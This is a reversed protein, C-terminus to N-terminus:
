ARATFSFKVKFATLRNSGCLSNPNNYYLLEVRPSLFIFLSRVNAASNSAIFRNFSSIPKPNINRNREKPADAFASSVEVWLGESEDM